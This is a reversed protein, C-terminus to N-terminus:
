DRLESRCPVATGLELEPLTARPPIESRSQFTMKAMAALWRVAFCLAVGFSMKSIGRARDRFVIPVELVRLNRGGHVIAEFAIKFGTASPALELLLERPMAFFGCMSDHVGTLPYAMGAAGRSLIKRWVPWGPTSGGVVYRSGIVMDARREFLPELLDAIQEHHHIRVETM